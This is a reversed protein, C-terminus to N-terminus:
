KKLKAIQMMCNKAEDYYGLSALHASARSYGVIETWTLFSKWFGSFPKVVYNMTLAAM